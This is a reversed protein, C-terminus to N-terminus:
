SMPVRRYPLSYIFPASRETGDGFDLGLGCSVIHARRASRVPLAIDRVVNTSFTLRVWNEGLWKVRKIGPYIRM